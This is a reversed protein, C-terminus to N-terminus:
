EIVQSNIFYNDVQHSTNWGSINKITGLILSEQQQDIWNIVHRATAPPALISNGSQFGLQSFFLLICCLACNEKTPVLYCLLALGPLLLLLLSLSSFNYQSFIIGFIYTSTVAILPNNRILQIPRM